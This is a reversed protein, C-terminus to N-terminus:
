SDCAPKGPSRHHTLPQRTGRRTSANLQESSVPLQERKAASRELKPRLYGLLVAHFEAVIAEKEKGAKARAYLGLAGRIIEHVVAGTTLAEPAAIRPERRRLVDAIRERILARRQWSNVTPPAALLAIFAPHRRALAIYAAVIDRVIREATAQPAREALPRWLAEVDAISRARLTEAIAEKNPFFQYLSGISAHARQAIACMTAADYGVEAMVRESARLLEAVRRQGREQTPTRRPARTPHKLRSPM